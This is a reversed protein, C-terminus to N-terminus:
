SSKEKKFFGNIALQLLNVVMVIVLLTIGITSGYGM